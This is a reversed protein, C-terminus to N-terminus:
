QEGDSPANPEVSKSSEENVSREGRFPLPELGFDARIGNVLQATRNDLSSPREVQDALYSLDMSGLSVISFRDMVAEIVIGCNNFYKLSELFGTCSASYYEDGKFTESPIIYRSTKHALHVVYLSLVLPVPKGGPDFKGNPSQEGRDGEGFTQQTALGDLKDSLEGSLSSFASPLDSLRRIVAEAESSIGASALNLRGAEEAVRSASSRIESLSTNFANNSIMSYFIAVIALLISAIGAAFSIYRYLYESSPDWTVIAIMALILTTVIWVLHIIAYNRFTLNKESM